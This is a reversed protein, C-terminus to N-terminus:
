ASRLAIVPDLRAARWAPYVGFVISIGLSVLFPYVVAAWTLAMRWDLLTAGVLIGSSGVLLGGVAGLVAVLITEILFQILVQSPLAGVALRLGIEVHRERVALLSIALLGVGALSLTLAALGSLLRGLTRDTDTLAALLAEQGRITFDDPRSTGDLDHRARLLAAVQRRAQGLQDRSETQVFIRDLHDDRILRRQATSIPILIRNDQDAGTSDVGKEELIGVIVFPMGNIQLREGLAHEGRLLEQVVHSGVVAVRSCRAAEDENFFRGSVVRINNTRQFDPTTGMITSSLSQRGHRVNLQAMSIPAVRTVGDVAEAIASCDALKLTEYQRGSGRLADNATRAASIAFINRGMEELAARFAREAGGSLGSLMVMSAIGVSMAAASLLTRSRARTLARLSLQLNKNWNM